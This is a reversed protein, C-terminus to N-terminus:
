IVRSLWARLHAREPIDKLVWQDSHNVYPIARVTAVVGSESIYKQIDVTSQEHTIYLPRGALRQLRKRASDADSEPYPWARVGDFHSHAFIAKWLRATESDRLGIYSCALAGRSFGCLVIKDLDGGFERCVFPIVARCYASTAQADGFWKLAHSKTDPDLFPLCVWIFGHGGSVGYGLKCDEVRGTTTDGYKNRYGGNSPYEVLVPYKRGPKWDSPLYVVHALDWSSYESLKMRFRRGAMPKADTVAPIILDSKIQHLNKAEGTFAM